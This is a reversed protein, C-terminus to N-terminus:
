NALPLAYDARERSERGFHLSLAPATGRMTKLGVVLLSVFFHCCCHGSTFSTRLSKRRVEGRGLQGRNQCRRDLIQGDRLKAIKDIAEM